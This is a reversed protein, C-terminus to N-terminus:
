PYNFNVLFAEPDTFLLHATSTTHGPAPDKTLCGQHKSQLLTSAVQFLKGQMKTYDAGPLNDLEDIISNVLFIEGFM